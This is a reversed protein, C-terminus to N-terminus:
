AVVALKRLGSASCWPIFLPLIVVGLLRLTSAQAVAESSLWILVAKVVSAAFM